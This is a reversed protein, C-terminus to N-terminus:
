NEKQQQVTENQILNLPQNNFTMGSQVLEYYYKDGETGITDEELLELVRNLTIWNNKFELDLAQGMTLRASAFDKRNEQLEAIHSYDKDIKLNYNDLSFFQQWQGYDIISDPIITNQYLDKKFQSVDNYSAAKEASMLRYPYGYSDCIRMVDDEIEEFLMLDRTPIGMQQWKIATPSIIFKHQGKKLGYKLFENNINDKEEQSMPVTGNPDIEQSLIGLSGRYNILTGRSQYAGIINNIQDSLSKIKSETVLPNDYSAGITKHITIFDKFIESTKGDPTSFLVRKIIDKSDASRFLSTDNLEITVYQPPLNWISKAFTKDKLGSPTMDMVINYGFIEKNIRSQAEFEYWSQFPNPKNLLSRVRNADKTFSEKGNSDLLWTRGNIYAKVKKNIIASLPACDTFAKLSSDTSNFTFYRDVGDAGFLWMNNSLKRYSSPFIIEKLANGINGKLLENGSKLWRNM